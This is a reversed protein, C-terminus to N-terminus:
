RAMVSLGRSGRQAPDFGLIQLSSSLPVWLDMRTGRAMGRFEAPSVGIVTLPQGNVRLAEGIIDPRGGFHQQWSAHSIVVSTSTGPTGADDAGFFRGLVPRVGLVDFYTASVLEGALGEVGDGLEVNFTRARYATVAEFGGSAALAEYDPYSTAGYLPGS